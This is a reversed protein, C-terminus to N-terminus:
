TKADVQEGFSEIKLKKGRDLAKLEMMEFTYVASKEVNDKVVRFVIQVWDDEGEGVSTGSGIHVEIPVNDICFELVDGTLEGSSRSFLRGNL